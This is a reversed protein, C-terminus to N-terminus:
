KLTIYPTWYAQDYIDTFKYTLRVSGDGVDTDSLKLAGNVTIQEGLMYSDQYDGDYSYYDCLFDITDGDKIDIEGKAVTDTEGDVYADTAGIVEGEPKEDTFKLILDVRDGNLLAPVYGTITYDDGNEVTDTHYYAM